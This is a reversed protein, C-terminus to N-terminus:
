REVFGSKPLKNALETLKKAAVIVNQRITGVDLGDGEEKITGAAGLISDLGDIVQKVAAEVEALKVM